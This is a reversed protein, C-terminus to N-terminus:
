GGCVDKRRLCHEGDYTEEKRCRSTPERWGHSVVSKETILWNLFAILKKRETESLGHWSDSALGVHGELEILRIDSDTPHESMQGAMYSWRRGLIRVFWLRVGFQEGALRAIIDLSESLSVAATAAKVAGLWGDFDSTERGM